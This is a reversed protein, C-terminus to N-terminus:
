IWLKSLAFETNSQWGALWPFCAVQRWLGSAQFLTMIHRLITGAERAIMGGGVGLKSRRSSSGGQQPTQNSPTRPPLGTRKSGPHLDLACGISACRYCYLWTLTSDDQLLLTQMQSCRALCKSSGATVWATTKKERKTDWKWVIPRGRENQQAQIKKYKEGLKIRSSGMRIEGHSM